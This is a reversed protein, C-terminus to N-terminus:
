RCTGSASGPARRPSFNRIGGAWGTAGARSGTSGASRELSAWGIGAGWLREVLPPGFGGWAALLGLAVLPLTLLDPLWQAEVDLAATLLLWWGLGATVLALPLPHALVAVVGIM